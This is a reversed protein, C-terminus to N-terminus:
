RRALYQRVRVSSSCIVIGLLFFAVVFLVTDEFFPWHTTVRSFGYTLVLTISVFTWGVAGYELLNLLTTQTRWESLVSLPNRADFVM